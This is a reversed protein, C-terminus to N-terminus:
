LSPAPLAIRGGARAKPYCSLDDCGSNGAMSPPPGGPAERAAVAHLPSGSVAVYDSARIAFARTLTAPGAAGDPRLV